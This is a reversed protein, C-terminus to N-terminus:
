SFLSLNDGYNKLLKRANITRLHLYEFPNANNNPAILKISPAENDTEGPIWFELRISKQDIKRYNALLLRYVELNDFDQAFKLENKFYEIEKKPNEHKYLNPVKNLSPRSKLNDFKSSKYYKFDVILWGKSDHIVLDPRRDRANKHFVEARFATWRDLNSSNREKNKQDDALYEYDCTEIKDLGFHGIAHELCMSEWVNAFGTMGGLVGSGGNPAQNFLRDLVDHLERYPPSKFPTQHDIETLLHRLEQLVRQDSSVLTAEGPLHRDAFDDALTNLESALSAGAVAQLTTDFPFKLADKAVWAALGVIRTAQERLVPAPADMSEFVPTGDSLYLARHLHRHIQRHDFHHPRPRNEMSISLIEPRSLLAFLETLATASGVEGHGDGSKQLASFNKGFRGLARYVEALLKVKDDGKDSPCAIGLPLQLTLQTPQDHVKDKQMLGVFRHNDKPQKAVFNNQSTM